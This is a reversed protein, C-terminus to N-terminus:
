FYDIKSDERAVDRRDGGRKMGAGELRKFGGLHPDRSHPVIVIRKDQDCEPSQDHHELTHNSHSWLVMAVQRDVSLKSQKSKSARDAGDIGIGIDLHLQLNLGLM